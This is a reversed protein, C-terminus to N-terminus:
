KGQMLLRTMKAEAQWMFEYKVDMLMLGDPEYLPLTKEYGAARDPWTGSSWADYQARLEDPSLTAIVDSVRTETSM